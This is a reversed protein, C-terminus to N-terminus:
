FGDLSEVHWKEPHDPLANPSQEDVDGGRRMFGGEGKTGVWKCFPKGRDVFACAEKDTTLIKYDCVGGNLEVAKKSDETLLDYVEDPVYKRLEDYRDAYKEKLFDFIADIEENSIYIGQVRECNGRQDLVFSDGYGKLKSGDYARDVGDGLVIQSSTSNDVKLCIRSPFNSRLTTSIVDASPRQTALLLIIGSARGKQALSKCLTETNPSISQLEAYEDIVFIMYPMRGYKKAIEGNPDKDYFDNYESLQKVGAAQIIKYRREMEWVAFALLGYADRMDTVPNIPCYPLDIYKSFEVKKPDIAFIKLEDPTAHSMASILLSNVFVSKGSNCTRVMSQTLYTHDGDCTFGYYKQRDAIKTITFTARHSSHSGKKVPVYKKRPIRVPIEDLNGSIGLRYYDGVFGISEIGKKCKKAHVQLGLSRGVFTVDEALQKSKTVFDYMKNRSLYGDSDMLGAFLERRVSIDAYKYDDPIFKEGSGVKDLDISRLQETFNNIVKRNCVEYNDPDRTFVYTSAANGPKHDVRIVCGIKEAYAYIADVVEKDATTINPCGGQRSNTAGDGIFIGMLYPDIIQETNREFSEIGTCLCMRSRSQAYPPLKLYENVTMIREHNGSWNTNFLILKHEGNVKLTGRNRISLEYMTDEGWRPTLVTRPTGDGGMVRDGGNILEVPKSTGDAMLILEGKAHCGTTGAILTHVMEALSKHVCEGEQNVGFVADTPDKAKTKLLNKAV